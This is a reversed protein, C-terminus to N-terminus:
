PKPTETSATPTNTATDHKAKYGRSELWQPAGSKEVLRKVDVDYYYIFGAFIIFTIALKIM